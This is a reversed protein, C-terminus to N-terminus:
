AGAKAVGFAIVSGADSRLQRFYKRTQRHGAGKFNLFAYYLHHSLHFSVKRLSYSLVEQVADNPAALGDLLSKPAPSSFVSKKAPVRDLSRFFDDYESVFASIVSFDDSKDTFDELEHRHCWDGDPWIILDDPSLTEPM